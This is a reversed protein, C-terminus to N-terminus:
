MEEFQATAICHCLTVDWLVQIRLLLATSIQLRADKMIKIAYKRKDGM